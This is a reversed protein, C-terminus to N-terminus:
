SQCDNLVLQPHKKYKPDYDEPDCLTLIHGFCWTIVDEGCVVHGKRSIGGGLAAAIAKGLEPKEAIFLRM